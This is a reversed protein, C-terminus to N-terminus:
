TRFILQPVKSINKAFLIFLPFTMQNSKLIWHDEKMKNIINKIGGTSMGGIRMKTIVERIYVSSLMSDRFIRIILDYDAACKLNINFLGYKEYVERRIFLTPHPPMWGRQLLGHKYPRSKWYRIVKNVDQKDVFVLDGYVMSVGKSASGIPSTFAKVINSITQSSALIDDSHLFGIVDGTALNIGKNLADYIGRDPESVLIVPFKSNRIYEVTGDKSGGDIVIHEINSYSQNSISEFVDPLHKISNYTATIISVKM